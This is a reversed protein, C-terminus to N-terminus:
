SKLDHTSLINSALWQPRNQYVTMPTRLLVHWWTFEHHSKLKSIRVVNVRFLVTKHKRLYSTVRIRTDQSCTMAKWNSVAPGIRTNCSRLWKTHTRFNQQWSVYVRKEQARRSAHQPTSTQNWENTIEVSPQTLQWSRAVSAKGQPFARPVWRTPPQIVGFDIHISCLLHIYQISLRFALLGVSSFNLSQHHYLSM